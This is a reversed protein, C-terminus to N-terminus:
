GGLVKSIFEPPLEAIANSPMNSDFMAAYVDALEEETLSYEALFPKFITLIAQIAEAIEGVKKSSEAAVELVEKSYKGESLDLKGGFALDSIVSEFGYTKYFILASSLLIPKLTNILFEIDKRSLGMYDEILPEAYDKLKRLYNRMDKGMKLTTDDTALQGQELINMSILSDFEPMLEELLDLAEITDGYNINAIQNYLELYKLISIKIM